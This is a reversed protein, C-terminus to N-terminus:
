NYVYLITYVLLLFIIHCDLNIRQKEKIHIIQDRKAKAVLAVLKSPGEAM